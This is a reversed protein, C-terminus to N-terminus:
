RSGEPTAYGFVRRDADFLDAGGGLAFASRMIDFQLAAVEDNWPSLPGVLAAYKPLFREILWARELLAASAPGDLPATLVARAADGDGGALLALLGEIREGTQTSVVTWAYAREGAVAETGALQVNAALRGLRAARRFAPDDSEAYKESLRWGDRTVLGYLLAGARRVNVELDDMWRRAVDQRAEGDLLREALMVGAWVSGDAAVPDAVVLEVVDPRHRWAEWRQQRANAAVGSNGLWARQDATLREPGVGWREAVHLAAAVNGDVALAELRQRAAPDDSRALLWPLTACPWPTADCATLLAAAEDPNTVTAAWLMAEAVGPEADRWRGAYGSNPRLHGLLLWALRRVSPDTDSRAEAAISEVREPGYWSAAALLVELRVSASGEWHLLRAWVEAAHEDARPVAAAVVEDLVSRAAASDDSELILKLRRAWLATSIAPLTWCEVERLLSAVDVFVQQDVESELRAIIRKVASPADGLRSAVEGNAGEADSWWQVAMQRQQADADFLRRLMVERRVSPWLVVGLAMGVALAALFGGARRARTM